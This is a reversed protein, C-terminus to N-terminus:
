SDMMAGRGKEGMRGMDQMDSMMREMMPRMREHMQEAEGRMDPPVTELMRDMLQMQRQIDSSDGSEVAPTSPETTDAAALGAGAAGTGVTLVGLLVWRLSMKKM